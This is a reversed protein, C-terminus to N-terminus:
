NLHSFLVHFQFFFLIFHRLNSSSVISIFCLKTFSDLFKLRSQSLSLIISLFHFRFKRKLLLTCLLIAILNIEPVSLTRSQSPVALILLSMKSLVLIFIHFKKILILIQFHSNLIHFSFYRKKSALYATKLFIIIADITHVLHNFSLRNKHSTNLSVLRLLLVNLLVIMM